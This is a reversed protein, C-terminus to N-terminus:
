GAPDAARRAADSGPPPPTPLDAPLRAALSEALGLTEVLVQLREEPSALPASDVSGDAAFRVRQGFAIGVVEDGRNRRAYLQYNFPSWPRSAEHFADFVSAPVDVQDIRCGIGRPEHLPRWRIVAQGAEVGWAPHGVGSGGADTLELPEGHLISADVLHRRGDLPVIVTAHNPPIDPAVMMTACARLAPFGLAVLLAHLAGNGAWCTGGSGDQLWAGFFDVAASGPLVGSEGARLHILKRVNDFPVRQCWAAYLTRLGDLTPEPARALGLRELVREVLAPPLSSTAPPM